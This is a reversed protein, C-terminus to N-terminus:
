AVGARLLDHLHLLGVPRGNEVVFVATFKGSNMLEIASSAIEGKAVTKPSRTMVDDIPLSPLVPSIHRRLDGDTVIGVLRGDADVVGVCGFGKASIASIAESMLTGTGVLPMEDGGHMLDEVHILGAGLKGGPHFGRFGEATFRRVELLAIALADGLALQMTTSTTPALGHPCAEPAKPLCLVIDANSGLASEPNATIAILPIDYRQTHHLMDRLELTEGSWSLAIVVDRKTIMGLDGHSAEAAHVFSAPTGTSAFTAALKRGVHGSKGMGTVIVRGEASQLKDVARLFATGLEGDLARALLALGGAETELTNRASVLAPEERAETSVPKLSM